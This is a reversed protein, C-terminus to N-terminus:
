KEAIWSPMPLGHRKALKVATSKKRSVYNFPDQRVDDPRLSLFAERHTKGQWKLIALKAATLEARKLELLIKEWAEIHKQVETSPSAAWAEEPNVRTHLVVPHRREYEQVESLRFAVDSFDYVRTRGEGSVKYPPVYPSSHSEQLCCTCHFVTQGAEDRLVKRVIYTSPFDWKNPLFTYSEADNRIDIWEALECPLLGPWQELLKDASLMPERIEEFGAM